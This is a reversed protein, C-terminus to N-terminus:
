FTKQTLSIIICKVCFPTLLIIKGHYHHVFRLLTPCRSVKSAFEPDVEYQEHNDYDHL